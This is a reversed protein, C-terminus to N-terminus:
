LAGYQDIKRGPNRLQRECRGSIDPKAGGARAKRFTEADHAFTTSVRDSYHSKHSALGPGRGRMRETERVEVGEGDAPTRATPPIQEGWRGPAATGPPAGSKQGRAGSASRPPFGLLVPAFLRRRPNRDSERTQLPDPLSDIGVESGAVWGSRGGRRQWLGFGPGNARGVVEPQVM